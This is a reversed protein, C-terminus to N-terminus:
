AMTEDTAEEYGVLAAEPGTLHRKMIAAAYTMVMKTRVEQIDEPVCFVLCGLKRAVTIGYRINLLADEETAGDTVIDWDVAEPEITAAAAVVWRGNAIEGDRFSDITELGLNSTQTNIFELIEAEEIPENGGSLEKLMQVTHLRCMQWVMGLVLKKIKQTIDSGGTTPLSLGLPGKGLVVAYNNNANKKFVMMKGRKPKEVKRWVVTGPRIADIVKLLNLGDEFDDFLNNIFFGPIGLCNAWMRFVREERSDGMDEEDLGIKDIEALEEEELADLGPCTNFLDATFVLNLKENGAAIDKAKVVPNCGLNSANSLVKQARQNMDSMNLASTDCANPNIRNMVITYAESDKVNSGFNNIRLPSGAERLHYNMWRLLIKEPSLKLFDEMTEGSELLRALEPHDKLNIHSLISMKVLQWLLGLVLVPNEAERIDGAGINHVRCGVAQCSRIGLVLNENVKFISLTKGPKPYNIARDFVTGPEILNSFKCLLVGDKMKEFLDDSNPDIPLLYQLSEDDGMTNNIHNAFAFVEEMSYTHLGGGAMEVKLLKKQEEVLKKLKTNNNHSAALKIATFFEEKSITGDRDKDAERLIQQYDRENLGIEILAVHLEEISLCGSGDQDMKNFVDLLTQDEAAM